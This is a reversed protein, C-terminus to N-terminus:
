NETPREVREVVLVEVLGKTPELKLGLQEQLATPLPPANPDILPADQGSPRPGPQDPIFTLEFDWNGTLGTRDIVSRGDYPSFVKVFESLPFGGFRIRGTNFRSGCMSSVPKGAQGAAVRAKMGEPSCDTSSRTLMPGPRGDARAMVLAYMPFERTERKVALKFREALLTRLAFRREGPESRPVAPPEHDLRATIDFREAGIWEPASVLQNDAIQYAYTILRRLPVNSATFRGGPEEEIRALREGSKNAKVSAVEFAVPTSADQGVMILPVANVAGVVIPLGIAAVATLALACRRGASM